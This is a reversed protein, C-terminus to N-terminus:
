ESNSAFSAIIKLLLSRGFEMKGSFIYIVAINIFDVIILGVAIVILPYTLTSWTWAEKTEKLDFSSYDMDEYTCDKYTNTLSDRKTCLGCQANSDYLINKPKLANWTTGDKCVLTASTTEREGYGIFGAGIAALFVASYAVFTLVNFFRYLPKDEFSKNM